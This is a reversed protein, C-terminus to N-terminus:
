VFMATPRVSFVTQGSTCLVILREQLLCGPTPYIIITQVPSDGATLGSKGATRRSPLKIPINAKVLVLFYGLLM